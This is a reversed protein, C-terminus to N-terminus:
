NVVTLLRIMFILAYTFAYRKTSHLDQKVDRALADMKTSFGSTRFYHNDDQNTSVDQAAREADVMVVDPREVHYQGNGSPQNPHRNMGHRTCIECHRMMGDPADHQSEMM